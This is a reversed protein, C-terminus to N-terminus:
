LARRKERSKWRKGDLSAWRRGCKSCKRKLIVAEDGCARKELTQPSCCNDMPDIDFSVGVGNVFVNRFIM